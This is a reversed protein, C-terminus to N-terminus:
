RRLRIGTGMDKRKARSGAGTEGESDLRGSGKDQVAPDSPGAGPTGSVVAGKGATGSGPASESRAPKAEAGRSDPSANDSPPTRPWLVARAVVDTSSARQTIRYSFYGPMRVMFERPGNAVSEASITLKLPTKGLVRGAEMVTARNPRSTLTLQFSSSPAPVAPSEGPERGRGPSPEQSPAGGKSVDGVPPGSESPASRDASGPAPQLARTAQQIDGTSQAVPDRGWWTGAGNPQRGVYVATLAVLSVLLGAVVFRAKQRRHEPPVLFSETSPPHAQPVPRSPRLVGPSVSTESEVPTSGIMSDRRREDLRQAAELVVSQYPASITKVGDAGPPETRLLGTEAELMRSLAPVGREDGSEADVIEGSEMRIRGAIPGSLLVCISRQAQHYMQLIDTLSLAPVECWLGGSPSAARHLVAELTPRSFPPEITEIDGPVLQGTREESRMLILRTAPAAPRAARLAESGDKGAIREACLAVDFAQRRLAEHLGEATEVHVISRVDLERLLALIRQSRDGDSEAILVSLRTLNAMNVSPSPKPDPAALGKGQEVVEYTLVAASSLFV